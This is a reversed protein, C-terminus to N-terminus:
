VSDLAVTWDLFPGRYGCDAWDYRLRPFRRRDLRRLLAIFGERDGVDAGTVQVTCVLGLTDVLLHHKPHATPRTPDAGPCAACPVVGWARKCTGPTLGAGAEVHEGLVPGLPLLGM